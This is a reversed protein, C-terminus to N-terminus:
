FYQRVNPMVKRKKFQFLLWPPLGTGPTPPPTPHDNFYQYWFLANARKYERGQGSSREWCADWVAACEGADYSSFQSNEIDKYVAWTLSPGYNTVWFHYTSDNNFEFNLRAMQGWGDYWLYGNANTWGLLDQSQYASSFRDWQLLGLGYGQGGATPTYYQLMYANTCEALTEGGNPLVSYKQIAGTTLSSEQQACGIIGAVAKECYGQLLLATRMSYANHIQKDNPNLYTSGMSDRLYVWFDNYLVPAEVAM